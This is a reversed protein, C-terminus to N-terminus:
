GKVHHEQLQAQLQHDALIGSAGLSSLKEKLVSATIVLCCTPCLTYSSPVSVFLFFIRHKAADDFQTPTVFLLM